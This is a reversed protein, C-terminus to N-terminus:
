NLIIMYLKFLFDIGFLIVLSSNEAMKFTKM